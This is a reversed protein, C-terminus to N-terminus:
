NKETKVELRSGPLLEPLFLSFLRTIWRTLFLGPTTTALDLPDQTWAQIHFFDRTHDLAMIIMVLGRLLDISDIRNGSGIDHNSVAVSEKM